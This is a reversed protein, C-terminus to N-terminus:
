GTIALVAELAVGDSDGPHFTEGLSHLIEHPAFVEGNFVLHGEWRDKLPQLGLKCDGVIALRVSGLAVHTNSWAGRTPLEEERLVVFRSTGSKIIACSLHPIRDRLRSSLTSLAPM